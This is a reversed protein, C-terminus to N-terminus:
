SLPYHGKLLNNILYYRYLSHSVLHNLKAESYGLRAFLRISYFNQGEDRIVVAATASIRANPSCRFYHRAFFVNEQAGEM